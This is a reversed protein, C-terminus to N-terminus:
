KLFLKKCAIATKPKKVFNFFSSLSAKAASKDMIKGNFHEKNLVRHISLTEIGYM